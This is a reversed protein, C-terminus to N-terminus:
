LKYFTSNRFFYLYKENVKKKTLKELAEAYIEVQMKHENVLLKENSNSIKDTKYDILIIEGNEEFYLDIIGQVLFDNQYKFTFPKERNIESSSLLRKGIESDYFDFISKINLIEKQKDSLYGIKVLKDIQEEIGKLDIKNLNIKEMVYHYTNGYDFASLGEKEIIFSPEKQMQPINNFLKFDEVNEDKLTNLATVSIKTPMKKNINYSSNFIEDIKKSNEFEGNELKNKIKLYSDVEKKEENEIDKLNIINISFLDNGDPIFENDSIDCIQKFEINGSIIRMIWDIYSKSTEIYEISGKMSWDNVSKIFNNGFTGFILLKDVSRTMAVYLIRMEEAINEEDIKRNIVYRSITNSKVRNEYDVYKTGIGYDKHMIFNNKSEMSKMQRNGRALIVVPFELGKSKHVSMLRVVNESESIVNATDFDANISNMSRIYEIFNFLGTISSESFLKAKQVLLKLNGRRLNGGPMASVYNLFNTESLLKEIFEDIEMFRAIKVYESIINIFEAARMGLESNTKSIKKLSEFYSKQPNKIRIRIIEAISFGGIPSKLVSLLAIDNRKNDIIKLLNLFIEIELTQLYGNGGEYYLPIGEKIFIEEYVPGWGSTARMLIVIDRYEIKRNKGLKKDYTDKGIIKKIRQVVAKAEIESQKLDLLELDIEDEEFNKKDANIINIEIKSNENKEFKIGEYLYADKNYEIEGFDKKMLNKFIFNIGDLIELRTRFNKSLNIKRNISKESMSFSDYKKLFLEPEALRFKYISQKVDGVLFVNNERKILNVIEEQIINTDQYEDVFIYDFKKRYENNILNDGLLELAFHELDNFDLVNKELKKNKFESDVKKIIEVFYKLLPYIKSLDEIQDNLNKFGINEILKNLNKKSKDRLEKTLKILNDNIEAKEKKGISKFRLYNISNFSNFFSYIDKELEDKLSIIMKIDSEIAVKYDLPGDTDECCEIAAYLYKLSIDLSKVIHKKLADVWIHNNFNDEEVNYLETKEELWNFPNVKSGIFSYFNKIAHYLKEDNRNSTYSEVISIFEDKGIEYEQELVEDVSKIFLLEKESTDLIRFSPDINIKHFNRKIIEMCFSHITSINSNNIMSIQKRIFENKENHSEIMSSLSELIREKMEGAAAKTFTIILMKNIPIEDNVVLSVIREVLVATKGSGAAASLLLNQNRSEFANRQESTWKVM